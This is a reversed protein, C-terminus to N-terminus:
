LKTARIFARILDPDKVGPASETGSSVDVQVAGTVRLADAVNAPTLGGALMWPVPWRLNWLLGWDFAVGNGGPLAADKPAKADVLIQDAVPWYDALRAIDEPGAIGVAKMVPLGYRQRIEAVRAPTERGHLQLMDLPVDALIADLLVDDADVVLGVKALGAPAEAALMRAEAIGLARPSRPFFVFGAYAAGAEAAAAVHAPERLGCVKVRVSKPPIRLRTM